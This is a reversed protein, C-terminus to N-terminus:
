LKRVVFVKEWVPSCSVWGSALSTGLAMITVDRKNGLGQASMDHKRALTNKFAAKPNGFTHKM